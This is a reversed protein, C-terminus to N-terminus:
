RVPRAAGSTASTLLAAGAPDAVTSQVAVAERLISALMEKVTTKGNSGTLAVLPLTFRGRWHAALAGLALRTNEVILLPLGGAEVVPLRAADVMAGSARKDAALPLYDHGDHREGCLAVFLARAPVTRTDTSVADFARDEGQLRGPIAGAVESLRMMSM